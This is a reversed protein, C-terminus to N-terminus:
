VMAAAKLAAAVKQQPRLPWSGRQEPRTKENPMRNSNELVTFSRGGHLFVQNSSTREREQHRASDAVGRRFHAVIRQGGIEVVSEIRLGNGAFVTGASHAAASGNAISITAIAASGGIRKVGVDVCLGVALAGADILAGAAGALSMGFAVALVAARFDVVACPALGLGFGAAIVGASRSV